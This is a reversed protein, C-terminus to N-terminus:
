ETTLKDSFMFSASDPSGFANSLDVDHPHLTVRLLSSSTRAALRFTTPQDVTIISDGSVTSFASTNLDIQLGLVSLTSRVIAQNTTDYLAVTVPDSTTGYGSNNVEALVRYGVRWTGASPLTLEDNTTNWEGATSAITTQTIPVETRELPSLFASFTITNGDAEVEINTGGEFAVVDKLVDDGVQAGLVVEGTAIKDATIGGDAIAVGSSSVEIGEGAQVALTIVGETGGGILGPGATIETIEHGTSGTPQELTMELTTPDQSVTGNAVASAYALVGGAGGIVEVRLIGGEVSSGPAMSAVSRQMAAYPGLTYQKTALENGDGDLLAVSVQINEGSTEVLGFNCRFSDDAPQQIGPIEVAEGSATSFDSPIGALLQGQSENIADGTQNYIRSGVAVSQDAQIRLAGVASDLGFLDQIADEFTLSTGAPVTIYQQDPSPNAQNRMLLSITVNAQDEGPNHIWATTYWFSGAAGAGRGVSPLFVDSGTFSATAVSSNFTVVLLASLFVCLINNRMITGGNKMIPMKTM